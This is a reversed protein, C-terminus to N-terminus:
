GHAMSHNHSINSSLRHNHDWDQGDRWKTELASALTSIMKGSYKTPSKLADRLERNIWKHSM